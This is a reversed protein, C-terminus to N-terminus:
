NVFHRHFFSMQTFQDNDAPNLAPNFKSHFFRVKCQRACDVIIAAPVVQLMKSHLESLLYNPIGIGCLLIYSFNHM